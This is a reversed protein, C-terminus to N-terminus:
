SNRSVCSRCLVYQQGPRPSLAAFSRLRVEEADAQDAEGDEAPEAGEEAEQVEEAEEEDNEQAADDFFGEEM